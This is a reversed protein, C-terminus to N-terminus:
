MHLMQPGSNRWQQVLRVQMISCFYRCWWYAFFFLEYVLQNFWSICPVYCHLIAFVCCLYVKRNIDSQEVYWFIYYYGNNVNQLKTSTGIFFFMLFMFIALLSLWLGYVVKISVKEENSLASGCFVMNKGEDQSAELTNSHHSPRHVPTVWYYYRAKILFNCINVLTNHCCFYCYIYFGSIWWTIFPQTHCKLM